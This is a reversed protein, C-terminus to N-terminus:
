HERTTDGDAKVLEIISQAKKTSCANRSAKRLFKALEEVSVGALSANVEKVIQNKELLYVAM